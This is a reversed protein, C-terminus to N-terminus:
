LSTRHQGRLGLVNVANAGMVSRYELDADGFCEKAADENKVMADYKGDERLSPFLPHDTGFMVREMGVADVAARLATSDFTIGDLYVNRKLVDRLSHRPSISSLRSQWAKDNAICAEIRGIVSPLTGGAHPLIIRLHAVQDFVNALYMRTFAITTETTFGLSVPLVQGHSGCCPGFVDNPLGYHPHFFIPLNVEALATFIPMFALDDLGSGLGAYGMVVGRCHSHSSLTKIQDLVTSITATLPLVAFFYLRGEYDCCMSEMEENISSAMRGAEAREDETTLFDLWPNGLSLVSVDIGHQDMFQIKTSVDHLNALLPKGIVGPRNVLTNAKSDIYPTAHRSRLLSIWSAPYLHSHIDVVVPSRTSMTIKSRVPTALCRVSITGPHSDPPGLRGAFGLAM